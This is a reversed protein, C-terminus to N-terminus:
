ILSNKNKNILYAHFENNGIKEVKYGLKKFLIESEGGVLGLQKARYVNEEWFIHQIKKNSLLRNAGKIVLYDAGETDIKLVEITVDRDTFYSDLTITNVEVLNAGTSSNSIGGWGTQDEPGQDFNLKGISDSVALTELDIQDNLDNKSINKTIAALNRPSAEFCISKNNIKNGCWILSYYGYNAGVDVMLGSNTVKLKAIEKSVENEYIGTFALYQHGIDFKNLDMKVTDAYQLKVDCFYKDSNKIKSKLLGHAVLSNAVRIPLRYLIYKIISM